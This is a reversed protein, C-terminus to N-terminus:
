RRLLTKLYMKSAADIAQPKRSQKNIHVHVFHGAAAANNEGQKFLATEYRVSSTGIHSIALGVILADPYALERFYTCGTEVVLYITKSTRVDLLKEEMLFRNVATDFLKYHVTNNLHGYQDNDDWRSQMPLHYPFDSLLPASPRTMM